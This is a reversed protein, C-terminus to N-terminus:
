VKDISRRHGLEKCSQLGGLTEQRTPGARPELLIQLAAPRPRSHVKFPESVLDAWRNYVENLSDESSIERAQQILSPLAEEPAKKAADLTEEDTRDEVM